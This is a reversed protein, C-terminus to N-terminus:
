LPLRYKLFHAKEFLVGSFGRDLIGISIELPTSYFFIYIELPPFVLFIFLNIEPPPPETLFHSIESFGPSTWPFQVQSSIWSNWSQFFLVTQFLGIFSVPFNRIVFIKCFCFFFVYIMRCRSPDFVPKKKQLAEAFKSNKKLKGLVKSKKKASRTDVYDADM